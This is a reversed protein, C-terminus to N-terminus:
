LRWADRYVHFNVMLNGLMFWVQAILM